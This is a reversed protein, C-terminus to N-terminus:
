VAPQLKPCGCGPCLLRQSHSPPLMFPTNQLEAVPQEQGSPYVPRWQSTRRDSDCLRPDSEEDPLLEKDPPAMAPMTMLAM